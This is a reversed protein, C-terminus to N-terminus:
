RAYYTGPTERPPINFNQISQRTFKLVSLNHTEFISRPKNHLNISQTQHCRIVLNSLLGDDESLPDPDSSSPLDFGFSFSFFFFDGSFFLFAASGLVLLDGFFFALTATHRLLLM